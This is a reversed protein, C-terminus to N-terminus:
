EYELENVPQYNSLTNDLVKAFWDAETISRGEWNNLIPNLIATVITISTNERLEGNVFCHTPRENSATWNKYEDTPEYIVNDLLDNGTIVEGTVRKSTTFPSQKM